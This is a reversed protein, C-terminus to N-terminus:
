QNKMMASQKRKGKEKTRALGKGSDTRVGIGSERSREEADHTLFRSIEKKGTEVPHRRGRL